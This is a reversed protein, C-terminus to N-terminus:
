RSSGGSRSASPACRGAPGGPSRPRRLRGARRCAALRPVELAVPVGLQEAVEDAPLWGTPRLLVVVQQARLGALVRRGAVVGALTAPLVLVVADGPGLLGAPCGVVGPMSWRAPSSPGGSAWSAPWGGRGRPAVPVAGSPWDPVSGRAPSWAVGAWRRCPPDCRGPTWRTPRTRSRRGGCGRVRPSAWRCTWARPTPTPMSWCATRAPGWPARSPSRRPGSAASRVWSGWCPRDASRPWSRCWGPRGSRCSSWTPVAWPSPPRVLGGARVRAASSSSRRVARAGGGPTAAAAGGAALLPIM